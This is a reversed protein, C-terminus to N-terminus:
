KAVKHALRRIQKYIEYKKPWTGFALTLFGVRWVSKVFDHAFKGPHILYQMGHGPIAFPQVGDDLFHLNGFYEACKSSPYCGLQIWNLFAVGSDMNKFLIKGSETKLADDIFSLAGSQASRIWEYDEQLESAEYEWTDLVPVTKGNETQYGLTTGHDATFLAEVISNFTAEKEANAENKHMDFLYGSAKMSGLLPSIPTLGLYYGHIEVPIHAAKVIKELAAQMHGFWGIDVIAIKGYFDLQELYKLLLTYQEKSHSIVTQKVHQNYIENFKKNKLLDHCNYSKLCDFGADVFYKEFMEYQIGMKKLLSKISIYLPLFMAKELHGLEADMWLTPVILARRSAYMYEQPIQNGLKEFAEQMIQGDRALFFVKDIGDKQFQEELWKVFGYLVPGEAEYGAQSFYDSPKDIHGVDWGHTASHTNIFACLDAYVPISKYANSDIFLNLKAETPVHISHMGLLKPMLFDSKKNDGIHLVESPKVGLTDLAHRFLGGRSKRKKIESSVFLSDYKIDLKALINEICKKPLYMDTIILIKKNQAQCYEYVPKMFPNWQCFECELEQERQKIRVMDNQSLGLDLNDYIEDLTIEGVTSKQMAMKEAQVRRHAFSSKGHFEDDIEKEMLRFLETPKYCNRKVLTDFIDFSIYQYKDIDNLFVSYRQYTRDVM